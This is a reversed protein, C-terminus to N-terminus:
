RLVGDGLDGFGDAHVAGGHVVVELLLASM